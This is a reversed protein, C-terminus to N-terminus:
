VSPKWETPDIEVNWYARPEQNTSLLRHPGDIMEITTMDTGPKAHDVGYMIPMPHTVKVKGLSKMAYRIADAAHDYPEDLIVGDAKVGLLKPKREISFRVSFMEADEAINWEWASKPPTVTLDYEDAPAWGDINRLASDYEQQAEVKILEARIEWPRSGLISDELELRTVAFGKQWILKNGRANWPSDPM